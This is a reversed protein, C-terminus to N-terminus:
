RVARLGPAQEQDAAPRNALLATLLLDVDHGHSARIADRAGMTMLLGAGIVVGKIPLWWAGGGLVFWGGTRGLWMALRLGRRM